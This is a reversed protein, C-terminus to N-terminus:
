TLDDVCCLQKKTHSYMYIQDSLVEEEAVETRNVEQVTQRLMSEDQSFSCPVIIWEHVSSPLLYFDEQLKEYIDQLINLDYAFIAGFQKEQETLIYLTKPIEECSVSQIPLGYAEALQILPIFCCQKGQRTRELANEFFTEEELGWADLFAKRILISGKQGKREELEFYAVVALDLFRIHLVDQLLEKNKEYHILKCFINWHAQEYDWIRDVCATIEEIQSIEEEFCDLIEEAQIELTSGQMFSKYFPELYITPAAQTKDKEFVIGYRKCGNLKTVECLRIEVDEPLMELLMQFLEERFEQYNM